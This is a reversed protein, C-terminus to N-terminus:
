GKGEYLKKLRKKYEEKDIEGYVFQAKLKREEEKIHDKFVTEKEEPKEEEVEKPKEEVKKIETVAEKVEKPKEKKAKKIETVAEKVEKPKEKKTKKIETTAELKAGRRKILIYLISGVVAVLVVILILGSGRKEPESPEEEPVQLGEIESIRQSCQQAKESDGLEEYITRAEEYLSVAQDYTGEQFLTEAQSFKSDADAYKSLTDQCQDIYSQCQDAMEQNEEQLFLTQAQLFLDVARNCDGKQYFELASNLYEEGGPPAPVGLQNELFYLFSDVVGSLTNVSHALMIDVWGDGNMDCLALGGFLDQDEISTFRHEWLVTGETDLVDLRLKSSAVIIEPEGDKNVDEAALFDATYTELDIERELEEERTDWILILFDDTSFLIEKERDGDIDAVAVDRLNQTEPSIWMKTGYIDLVYVKQDTLAIIEPIGDWSLDSVVIKKIQSGIPVNWNLTEGMCLVERTGVLLEKKGNNDLDEAEAASVVTGVPPYNLNQARSSLVYLDAGSVLIEADGDDDLDSISLQKVPYSSDWRFKKNGRRDLVQVAYKQLGAQPRISLGLVIEPTGDSDLDGVAMCQIIEIQKQTSYNKEWEIVFFEQAAISACLLAGVCFSLFVKKIVEIM